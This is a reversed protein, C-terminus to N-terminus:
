QATMWSKVTSWDPLEPLRQDLWFDFTLGLTKRQLRVNDPYPKFLVKNWKKRNETPANDDQTYIFALVSFHGPVRINADNGNAADRDHSLTTHLGFLDDKGYDAPIWSFEFPKTDPPERVTWRHEQSGPFKLREITSYPQDNEVTKTRAPDLDFETYKASITMKRYDQGTFFFARVEDTRDFFTRVKQNAPEKSWNDYFSKFQNMFAALGYKEDFFFDKLDTFSAQPLDIMRTNKDKDITDKVAEPDPEFPFRGALKKEIGWHNLFRALEKLYLDRPDGVLERVKNPYGTFKAGVGPTEGVAALKEPLRKQPDNLESFAKLKDPSMQTVTQTFLKLNEDLQAGATMYREVAQYLDEIKGLSADEMQRYGRLNDTFNKLDGKVRASLAGPQAILKEGQFEPWTKIPDIWLYPNWSDFASKWYAVFQDRNHRRGSDLESLEAQIRKKNILCEPAPKIQKLVDGLNKFEGEASKLSAVTAGRPPDVALQANNIQSAELLTKPAKQRAFQLKAEVLVAEDGQAVISQITRAISAIQPKWEDDAPSTGALKASDAAWQAAAVRAPDVKWKEFAAEAADNTAPRGEASLFRIEKNQAQALADIAAVGGFLGDLVASGAIPVKSDEFKKQNVAQNEKYNAEISKIRDAILADLRKRPEGDAKEVWGLKEFEKRIDEESKTVSKLSQGNAKAFDQYDRYSDLIARAAEQSQQFPDSSQPNEYGCDQANLKAVKEGFAGKFTTWKGIIDSVTKDSPPKLTDQIFTIEREIAKNEAPEQEGYVLDIRIPPFADGPKDSFDLKEGLDKKIVELQADFDANAAGVGALKAAGGFDGKNGQKSTFAVWEDNLSWLPVYKNYLESSPAVTSTGTAQEMMQAYLARTQQYFVNQTFYMWRMDRLEPGLEHFQDYFAASAVNFNKSVEIAQGTHTALEDIEAKAPLKTDLNRSKIFEDKVEKAVNSLDGIHKKINYLRWGAYGVTLLILLISGVVAFIGLKQNVGMKKVSHIVMNKEQFLKDTYFDRIFFAKSRAFTKALNEILEDGGPGANRILAACAKAIPKGEQLGSTFYFGRFFLAPLYHTKVFITKLYENLPERLARMEEPFVYLKDVETLSMDEGLLKLRLKHIRTCFADFVGNFKAPDYAQIFPGPMSWGLIQRQDTAPLRSFFETFGLIQDAKTILIFVPFQVELDRQLQTLKERLNLAKAERQEDTDGLLSSCPIVMIVGNIPCRGRNKKLLKLFTKWESADPANQEQFTFRGATDLIVAENTFWWDCNRTGGAGSLAETGVPFELGSNKLTTSKGSQPEGILLYWPLTYLDMGSKKIETVATTWRDAIESQAKRASVKGEKATGVDKQLGKEFSLSKSKSVGKIFLNYALVLLIVLCVFPISWKFPVIHYQNLLFLGLTVLGAGVGFKQFAKSTM